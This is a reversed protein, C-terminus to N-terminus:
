FRCLCQIFPRNNEVKLNLELDGVMKQDILRNAAIGYMAGLGAGAIVQSLLHRNCSVFTLGIIISILSLPIAYKPGYRMGYLVATFTAEAVHGSPFGGYARDHCSFHENWPRLCADFKAKKILDKGWIVFPMGLMLLWATDREEKDHTFLWRTGFVVVPVGIGFQGVRECWAPLQNINKHHIPDYFYRQVTEDVMRSGIFFPFISTIIKFSDWSILNLNLYAADKVAGALLQAVPTTGCPYSWPQTYDCWSSVYPSGVKTQLIYKKQPSCSRPQSSHSVIPEITNNTLTLLLFFPWKIRPTNKM